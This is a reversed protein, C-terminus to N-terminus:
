ERGNNATHKRGTVVMQPRKTTKPNNKKQHDLGQFDYVFPLLVRCRSFSLECFEVIISHVVSNQTTSQMQPSVGVDCRSFVCACDVDVHCHIRLLPFGEQTNKPVSTDRRDTCNRLMRSPVCVISNHLPLKSVGPEPFGSGLVLFGFCLFCGLSPKTERM